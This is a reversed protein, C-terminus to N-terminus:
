ELVEEVQQQQWSEYSQVYKKPTVASFVLFSVMFTVFVILLAMETRESM